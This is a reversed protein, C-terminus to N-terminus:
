KKVFISKPIVCHVGKRIDVAQSVRCDGVISTLAYAEERSMPVQSNDTELPGGGTGDSAVNFQSNIERIVSNYATVLNNNERTAQTTDPSKRQRDSADFAM